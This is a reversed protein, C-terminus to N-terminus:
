FIFLSFTRQPHLKGGGGGEWGLVSARLKIKLIFATIVVNERSTLMNASGERVGLELETRAKKRSLMRKLSASHQFKQTKTSVLLMYLSFHEKLM